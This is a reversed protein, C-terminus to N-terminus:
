SLFHKTDDTLPKPLASLEKGAPPKAKDVFHHILDGLEAGIKRVFDVMYSAKKIQQEIQDTLEAAKVKILNTFNAKDFAVIASAESEPQNALFLM